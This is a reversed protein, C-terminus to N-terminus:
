TVVQAEAVPRLDQVGDVVARLVSAHRRGCLTPDFAAQAALAIGRRRPGWEAQTEVLRGMAHVLEARNEQARYRTSIMAEWSVALPDGLPNPVLAGAEPLAAVQERAGGVDALVVPVGAALAEMSALSWGEFYSNLVFGDAAALLLAPRAVHDRLHIRDQSALRSRLDVVQGAYPLDDARGAVVLHVDPHVKAVDDFASVLAFTNKQLCHRALSVALFEDGLGLAARADSRTPAVLRGRDVGNPVVVCREPPLVDFSRYQDRVTRSVAVVGALLAARGAVEDRRAAFLSHMGHLTEVVPIGLEAAATLAWDPAGHASIVDPATARLWTRVTDRRLDAVEVDEGRLAIGLRGVPRVPDLPVHAVTTSLGHAPLERALFAVVEDMGGVDLSETMLLCRLAEGSEDAGAPEAAHPRCSGDPQRPLGVVTVGDWISRGPDRTPGERVVLPDRWSDIVVARSGAGHALLRRALRRLAAPAPWRGRQAAMASRSVAKWVSAM